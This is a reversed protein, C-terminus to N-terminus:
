TKNNKRLIAVDVVRVTITHLPNKFRVMLAKLCNLQISGGVKSRNNIMHCPVLAFMQGLPYIVSHLRGKKSLWDTFLRWCAAMGDSANPCHTITERHISYFYHLSFLCDTALSLCISITILSKHHWVNIKCVYLTIFTPLYPPTEPLSSTFPWAAKRSM